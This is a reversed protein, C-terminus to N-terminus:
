NNAYFILGSTSWRSKKIAPLKQKGDRKTNETKTLLIILRNNKLEKPLGYYVSQRKHGFQSTLIIQWGNKM